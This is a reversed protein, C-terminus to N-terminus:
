MWDTKILLDAFLSGVSLLGIQVLTGNTTTHQDIVMGPLKALVNDIFLDSFLIVGLVFIFIALKLNIKSFLDNAMTIFDDSKGKKDESEDDDQRDDYISESM